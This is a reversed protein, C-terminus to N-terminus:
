FPKNLAQNQLIISKKMSFNSDIMVALFYSYLGERELISESQGWERGEELVEKM